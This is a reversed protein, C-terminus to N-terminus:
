TILGRTHTHHNNGEVLIQLDNGKTFFRPFILPQGWVPDTDNLLIYGRSKPKLLIPRVNIADYYSVPSMNLRSANAPDFIWDKKNSNDFAYNIDPLDVSNEYRYIFMSFYNCFIALLRCIVLSMRLFVYEIDNLNYFLSTISFIIIVSFVKKRKKNM